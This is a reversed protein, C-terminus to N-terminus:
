DERVKGKATVQWFKPACFHVRTDREHLAYQVGTVASLLRRYEREKDDTLRRMTHEPHALDILGLACDRIHRCISALENNNFCMLTDSHLIYM